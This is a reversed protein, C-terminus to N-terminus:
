TGSVPRSMDGQIEAATLAHDYVRIEDLSGKFWEPWLNDGGFRLPQTSTVLPGAQAKTGVQM